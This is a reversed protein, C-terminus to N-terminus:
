DFAASLIDSFDNLIKSQKRELEEVGDEGMVRQQDLPKKKRSIKPSKPPPSLTAAAAVLTTSDNQAELPTDGASSASPSGSPSASPPALLKTSKKKQKQTKSPSTPPPQQQQSQPELGLIAQKEATVVKTKVKEEEEEEVEDREVEKPDGQDEEKFVKQEDKQEKSGKKSKEKKIKKLSKVKKEKGRESEKKDKEDEKKTSVDDGDEQETTSSDRSERSDRSAEKAHRGSVFATFDESHLFHNGEQKREEEGTVIIQPRTQHEVQRQSDQGFTLDVERELDVAQAVEDFDFDNVSLSKRAPALNLYNGSEESHLEEKESNAATVTVTVTVTTTGNLDLDSNLDGKEDFQGNEEKWTFTPLFSSREVVHDVSLPLSEQFAEAISAQSHLPKHRSLFHAAQPESSPFSDSPQQQHYQHHDDPSSTHEMESNLPHESAFDSTNSVFFTPIEVQQDVSLTGDLSASGILESFFPNTPHVNMLPVSPERQTIMPPLFPNTSPIVQVLPDSVFDLSLTNSAPIEQLSAPDSYLEPQYTAPSLESLVLHAFPPGELQGISV